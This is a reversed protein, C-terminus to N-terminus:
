IGCGGPFRGMAEIQCQQRGQVRAIRLTWPNKRSSPHCSAPWHFKTEQKLNLRAEIPHEPPMQETHTLSAAPGQVSGLGRVLPLGLAAQLKSSLTLEWYSKGLPRTVCDGRRRPGEMGLLATRRGQVTEM